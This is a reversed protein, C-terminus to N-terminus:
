IFHKDKCLQIVFRFVGDADLDTTEVVIADPAPKLPAVERQSDDRDRDILGRLVDPLNVHIGQQKLQLYRRKARIEPDAKLFLKLSADPFVVTGMDRGDTVLGPLQRSERQCSMLRDRVVPFASVRSAMKSCDEERIRETVEWDALFLHNKDRREEVRLDQSLQNCLKLLQQENSIDQQKEIALVALLRYFVGSDLYHWGLKKALRFSLTGKGSGTPGDVTIVPITQQKM